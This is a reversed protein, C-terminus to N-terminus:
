MVKEATAYVALAQFLSWWLVGTFIGVSARVPLPAVTPFSRIVMASLGQGFHLCTASLGVVYLAVMPTTATHEYVVGYAQASGGGLWRVWLAGGAHVCLFVLSTAGTLAQFHRFARSGYSRAVLTDERRFLKAALGVHVLLALGFLALLPPSHSADLRAIQADRGSLIANQQWAHFVLFGGLGIVGSAGLWARLRAAARDLRTESARPGAEM